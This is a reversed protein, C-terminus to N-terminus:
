KKKGNCIKCCYYIFEDINMNIIKDNNLKNFIVHDKKSRALQEKEDLGLYTLWYPYIIEKYSTLFSHGEKLTSIGSLKSYLEYDSCLEIISHVVEGSCDFETYNYKDYPLASHLGEHVLYVLNYNLDDIGKYHGWFTSGDSSFGICSNPHVIFVKIKVNLKRKFVKKLYTNIDSKNSKWGNMIFDSYEKTENYLKKFESSNIFDAIANKINSNEFRKEFNGFAENLIKSYGKRYKNWLFNELNVISEGETPLCGNLINLAVFIKSKLDYNKYINLFEKTTILEELLLKTDKNIMYYYADIMEESSIEKVDSFYKLYLLEKVKKIEENENYMGGNLIFYAIYNKNLIFDFNM